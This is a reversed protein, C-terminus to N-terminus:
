LVWESKLEEAFLEKGAGFVKFVRPPYTYLTVLVTGCGVKKYCVKIKDYIPFVYAIYELGTESENLIQSLKELKIYPAIDTAYIPHARPYKKILLAM